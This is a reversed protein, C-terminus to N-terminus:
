PMRGTAEDAEDLRHIEDREQEEAIEEDTPPPDPPLPCCSRGM